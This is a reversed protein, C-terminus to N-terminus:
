KSSAAASCSRRTIACCAPSPFAKSRPTCTGSTTTSSTRAAGASISRRSSSSRASARPVYVPIKLERAARAAGASHDRFYHTCALAAVKAPLENVHDIWAGTGADIIVIGEPGRIAYVNCSDNRYLWLDPAISRWNKATTTEVDVEVHETSVTVGRADVLNLYGAVAGPPMTASVTGQNVDLTAPATQWFRRSAWEFADTTFLLEAREIPAASEYKAWLENTSELHGQEVIRAMPAANKCFSDAFVRIEEPNEGPGGHAHPMRLLLSLTRPGPALRASDRWQRPWFAFDNTGNLWLIPITARPLYQSPDWLNNWRSWEESGQGYIAAIERWLACTRYDGCGYVPVAFRFRADVSAAISTLYGGWSIGTVGVRSADIEPMSRILSHASIVASTAHYTWHDEHPRDLQDFGGWGPPGGHAHREWAGYSGRPVCGCTDMAIAAYGRSNWLRVWEAFATGGGGHVLVMAPLKEGPQTRPAGYWAFVRTPRGDYPAGDYFSARVGDERFEDAPYTAPAPRTVDISDLPLSM